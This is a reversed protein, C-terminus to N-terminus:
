PQFDQFGPVKEFRKKLAERNAADAAQYRVKMGSEIILKMESRPFDPPPQAQQMLEFSGDLLALLFDAYRLKFKSELREIFRRRMPASLMDLEVLRGGGTKTIVKETQYGVPRVLLRRPLELQISNIKEPDTLIARLQRAQILVKGLQRATWAYNNGANKEETTANAPLRNMEQSATKQLENWEATEPANLNRWFCELLTQKDTRIKTLYAQIRDALKERNARELEAAEAVAKQAEAQAQAALAQQATRRAEEAEKQAEAERRRKEAAESMRAHASRRMPEMRLRDDIRGFIETIRDLAAREEVTVPGPTFQAFFADAQDLFKQEAAPERRLQNELAAIGALYDKRTVPKPKEVVQPKPPAVPQKVTPTTTASVPAGVRVISGDQRVELKLAALMKDQYPRLKEPMKNFRIVAYLGGVIIVLLVIVAVLSTVLKKVWKYDKKPKENLIQELKDAIPPGAKPEDKAAAKLSLGGKKEEAPKAEPAADPAKAAAPPAIPTAPAAPTVSPPVVAPQAAAALSGPQGPTIKAGSASPTLTPAPAAQHLATAGPEKAIVGLKPGEAKSEGLRGSTAVTQGLKLGDESPRAGLKPGNEHEQKSLMAGPQQTALTPKANAAAPQTAALGPKAAAAKPPAAKPPTMKPPPATKPAAVSPATMRPMEMKPMQPMKKGPINLKPPAGGPVTLRPASASATAAPAGGLFAELDRALDGATQYRANIDKQMMKIIIQNLEAPLTPQVKIPETLTGEVHQRAIENGDKGVYPFRGTVLHYFTAGLSYIDSRTDTPMGTLQEPSIYQPTGMVEDSDEDQAESVAVRALGLDALKAQGRRTLMINDPKIDQHVLKQEKWAFDLAQAVDRIIEAAKRPDIKEEKKLIQKMTEGEVLEMAFYFIGEEEGVAYAQVINPHTIRAAVRAERVFGQVFEDDNAFRQQLVKLAVPRDLSIQRALYVIGVGGRAIERIIAFDSIIAGPATREAPLTIKSGCLSCTIEEGPNGTVITQCQSCLFRM